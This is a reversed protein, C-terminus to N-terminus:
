KIGCIQNYQPQGLLHVVGMEEVKQGAFALEIIIKWVDSTIAYLSSLRMHSICQIISATDYLSLPYSWIHYVSIPAIDYLPPIVGCTIYV